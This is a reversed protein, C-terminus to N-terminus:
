AKTEFLSQAFQRAKSLADRGKQTLHSSYLAENPSSVSIDHIQSIYFNTNLYILARYTKEQTRFNFPIFKNNGVWLLFELAELPSISQQNSPNESEM